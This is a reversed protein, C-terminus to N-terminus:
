FLPPIKGTADTQVVQGTELDGVKAELKRLRFERVRGPLPLEKHMSSKGRYGVRAYFGKADDVAGLSITQVGRRMAGVEYTQMLRRGLGKGRAEPLLAVMRVINSFGLVGGVVRGEQEAIVMLRRDEPFNNALDDFIRDDHTRPPTFQAGLLDFVAELEEISAVWRILYREGDVNDDRVM